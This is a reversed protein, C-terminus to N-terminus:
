LLWMLTLANAMVLPLLDDFLTAFIKNDVYLEM